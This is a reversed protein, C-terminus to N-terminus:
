VTAVIRGTMLDPMEEQASRLVVHSVLDALTPLLSTFANGLVLQCFLLDARDPSTVGSAVHRLLLERVLVADRAAAYTADDGPLLPGM